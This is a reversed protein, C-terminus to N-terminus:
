LKRAPIYSFIKKRKSKGFLSFPYAPPPITEPLPERSPLPLSAPFVNEWTGRASLRFFKTKRLAAM